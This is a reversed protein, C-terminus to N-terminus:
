ERNLECSEVLYQDGTVARSFPELTNSSTMNLPFLACIAGNKELVMVSHDEITGKYFEFFKRTHQFTFYNEQKLFVDWDSRFRSDYPVVEWKQNMDM